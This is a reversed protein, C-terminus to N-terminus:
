LTMGEILTSIIIYASLREAQELQEADFGHPSPTLISDLVELNEQIIHGYPTEAVSSTEMMARYDRRMAFLDPLNSTTIISNHCSLCKNLLSCPNGEKYSSLRKIDDPPDYANRCEILGTKITIPAPTTMSAKAQNKDEYSDPAKQVAEKHIRTLAEDVIVQATKSFELEDLYKITTSIHKQGLIVQIERISVNNEVLEAVLSPRLRSASISLSHGADNLLNHDSAFKNMIVNIVVSNELTKIKRFENKKQSEYIFLRVKTPSDARERIHRTLYIVDNFIKKVEHSQSTTLWTLDAHMLDLHYIKEGSSREKWYRLCPRKTIEHSKIFDDVDLSKLSDANLGTVQALRTIYPALLRSTIEYIVGWSKYIEIIDISAYQFIRALAQEYLNKPDASWKSVRQCNLKNEFIWRANDLNGLGNIIHGKSDVPNCGGGFPVYDKALNNTVEIEIKCAVSIKERESKTYPRYEDTSRSVNFGEADIFSTLGFDKIQVAMKFMRHAVSLLSNATHTSLARESVLDALYNRFRPLYYPTIYARPDENGSYGVEKLHQSAYRFGECYNKKSSDSSSSMSAAAFIHFLKNFPRAPDDEVLDNFQSIPTARLSNIEKLWTQAKPNEHRKQKVDLRREKCTKYESDIVGLEQLDALIETLTQEVLPLKARAWKLNGMGKVKNFYRRQSITNAVIPIKRKEEESHSEYWNLLKRRWENSISNYGPIVIKEEIMKQLISDFIHKRSALVTDATKLKQKLYTYSLSPNGNQSLQVSLLSRRSSKINSAWTEIEKTIEAETRKKRRPVQTVADYEDNLAPSEFDM